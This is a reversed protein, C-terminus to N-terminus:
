GVNVKAPKGMTAKITVSRIQGGSDSVKKEVADLVARANEAIQDDTMSEKGIRGHFALQAKNALRITKRFREMIPAPNANQPVPKPMKGRPGLVPGFVKGILVMLDSQAVTFDYNKMISKIKKKNGQLSEIEGRGIIGDAGADRAVRAMEGDAFVLIRKPEGAGHPLVVDETVKGEPKKVDIGKITITIDVGQAFKRKGSGERMEKVAKALDENSFPM